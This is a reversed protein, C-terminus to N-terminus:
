GNRRVSNWQVVTKEQPFVECNEAEVLNGGIYSSYYGDRKFFRKGTSDELSFVVYYTSTSHSPGNSQNGEYKVTIGDSEYSQSTKVYEEFAGWAGSFETLTLRYEDEEDDFDEDYNERAYSKWDTYYKSEFGQELLVGLAFEIAQEPSMEAVTLTDVGM